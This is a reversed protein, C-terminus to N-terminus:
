EKGEKEGVSGNLLTAPTGSSAPTHLVPASSSTRIPLWAPSSTSLQFWSPPCNPLATELLLLTRYNGLPCCGVRSSGNRIQLRYCLPERILQLRSQLFSLINHINHLNHSSLETHPAFVMNSEATADDRTQVLGTAEIIMNLIDHASLGKFPVAEEMDNMQPEIDGGLKARQVFDEWGNLAREYLAAGAPNRVFSSYYGRKMERAPPRVRGRDVETESEDTETHEDDEAARRGEVFAMYAGQSALLHEHQIERAKRRFQIELNEKELALVRNANAVKYEYERRLIERHRELREQLQRNVEDFEPVKKHANKDRALKRQSHEALVSLALRQAAAVKKFAKDLERQRDRMKQTAPTPSPSRLPEPEPGSDQDNDGDAKRGTKQGGGRTSAGMGGGGRGRGRGRGRGSSVTFEVGNESAQEEVEETIQRSEDGAASERAATTDNDAADAVDLSGDSANAASFASIEADQVDPVDDDAAVSITAGAKLADNESAEVEGEASIADVDGPSQFQPAAKDDVNNETGEQLQQDLARDLEPNEVKPKKRPSDSSPMLEGALGDDPEPSKRKLSKPPVTESEHKEESEMDSPENVKNEIDDPGNDKSLSEDVLESMQDKTSLQSVVTDLPSINEEYRGANKKSPSSTARTSEGTKQNLSSVMQRSRTRTRGGPAMGASPSGDPQKFEAQSNSFTKETSLLLENSASTGPTEPVNASAVSDAAAPAPALPAAPASPVAPGAAAAAAARARSTRTERVPNVTSTATDAVPANNAQAERLSNAQAQRASNARATRTSLTIIRSPRGNNLNNPTANNTSSPTSPINMNHARADRSARASRTIRINSNDEMLTDASPTMNGTSTAGAGAPTAGQSAEVKRKAGAM